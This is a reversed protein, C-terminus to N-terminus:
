TILISRGYNPVSLQFSHRGPLIPELNGPKTDLGSHRASFIQVVIADFYAIWGTNAFLNYIFPLYSMDKSIKIM